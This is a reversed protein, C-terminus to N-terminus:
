HNHVLQYANPIDAEFGVISDGVWSTDSFSDSASTSWARQLQGSAMSYVRLGSSMAIGSVVALESRDASLAMSEIVANRAFHIPLRTMRAPDAAGPSIRLLYFPEPGSTAVVFTRDDAAGAPPASPTTGKAFPITAITKGTHSDGM